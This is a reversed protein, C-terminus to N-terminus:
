NGGLTNLLDDILTIGTIPEPETPTPKPEPKSPSAPKASQPTSKQPNANSPSGSPTTGGTPTDDTAKTQSGTTCKDLNLKEIPMRDRTYKAFVQFGCLVFSRNQRALSQNDKIAQKTYTNLEKNQEALIKNEETLKEVKTLLINQGSLTILSFVLLAGVAIYSLWRRIQMDHRHIWLQLHKVYRIM